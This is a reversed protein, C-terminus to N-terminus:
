AIVKNGRDNGFQVHKKLTAKNDPHAKWCCLKAFTWETRQTKHKKCPALKFYICVHRVDELLFTLCRRYYNFNIKVIREVWWNSAWVVKKKVALAAAGHRAGQRRRLAAAAAAKEAGGQLEACRLGVVAPGLRTTYRWPFASLNPHTQQSLRGSPFFDLSLINIKKIPKKPGFVFWWVNFVLCLLHSKQAGCYLQCEGLGILLAMFSEDSLGHANRYTM